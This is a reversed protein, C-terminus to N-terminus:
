PAPSIRVFAFPTIPSTGFELMPEPSIGGAPEAFAHSRQYIFFRLCIRRLAMFEPLKRGSKVKQVANRMLFMAGNLKAINGRGARATGVHVCLPRPNLPGLSRPWFGFNVMRRPPM